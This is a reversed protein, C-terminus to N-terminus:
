KQIINQIISVYEAPTVNAYGTFGVIEEDVDLIVILPFVGNPNYKEALWENQAIKEATLRNKKMKPFDLQVPVFKGEAFNLFTETTLINKTLQICPKCWDSGSFYLMLYKNEKGAIKKAAEFDTGWKLSSPGQNEHGSVPFRVFSIVCM